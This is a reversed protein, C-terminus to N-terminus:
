AARQWSSGRLPLYHHAVLRLATSTAHAPGTVDVRIGHNIAQWAAIVFIRDGSGIVLRATDRTLMTPLAALLALDAGDPGDGVVVIADPWVKRVATEHGDHEGIGVVVLDRAGVQVTDVYRRRCLLLRDSDNTGGQTLNDLDVLHISFGAPGM